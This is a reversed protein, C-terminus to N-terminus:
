YAKICDNACGQMKDSFQIQYKATQNTQRTNEYSSPVKGSIKAM